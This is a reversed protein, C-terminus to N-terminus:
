LEAARQRPSMRIASEFRPNRQADGWAKHQRRSRLSTANIEASELTVVSTVTQLDIGRFEEGSCEMRYNMFLISHTGWLLCFYWAVLILFLYHQYKDKLHEPLSLTILVFVPLLLIPLFLLTAITEKGHFAQWIAASGFVTLGIFLAVILAAYFILYIAAARKAIRRLQGKETTSLRSVL